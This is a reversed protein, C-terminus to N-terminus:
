KGILKQIDPDDLNDLTILKVGTNINPAVKKGRIYEALTKISLYGMQFPDQVMLGDIEKKRLAEVLQESTDFGVFRIKGALKAERLAMLMGITSPENPCFIGDAQKLTDIMAMSAAWANLVIGGAYHDSTLLQIDNHSAIAKIFGEERATTSAHGAKYRLLAVKGKDGLLKALYEGALNGGKNNDTGVFSVFDEGPKGKLASDFIIVPINNKIAKSVPSALESYDQPSLAIASVREKIGDEVIQIQQLKDNETVPSKWLIDCNGLEKAAENAGSHVLKWFQGTGGKPIVAIKLKTQQMAASPWALAIIVIAIFRIFSKKM